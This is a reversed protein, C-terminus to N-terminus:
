RTAIIAKEARGASLLIAAAALAANLATKSRMPNGSAATSERFAFPNRTGASRILKLSLSISCTRFIIRVPGGGMTTGYRACFLNFVKLKQAVLRVLNFSDIADPRKM